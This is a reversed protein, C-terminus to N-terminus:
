ISELAEKVAEPNYGIVKLLVRAAQDPLSRGEEWNRIATLSLHFTSAFEQQTLDLKERVTRPDVSRRMRSLQEETLPQADPDSLAAAHIEEETMADLRAMDERSMEPPNDPDLEYRM